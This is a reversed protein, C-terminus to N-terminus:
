HRARAVSDLARSGLDLHVKMRFRVGETVQLQDPIAPPYAMQAVLGSAEAVKMRHIKGKPGMTLVGRSPIDILGQDVTSLLPVPGSEPSPGVPRSNPLVPLVGAGGHRTAPGEHRRPRAMHRHRSAYSLRIGVPAVPDTGHDAQSVSIEIHRLDLRPIPDTDLVPELDVHRLSVGQPEHQVAPSLNAIVCRVPVRYDLVLVALGITGGLAVTVRLAWPPVLQLPVGGLPRARRGDIRGVSPELPM